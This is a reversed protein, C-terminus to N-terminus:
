STLIGDIAFMALRHARHFESAIDSVSIHLGRSRGMAGPPPLM